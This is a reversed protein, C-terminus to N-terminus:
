ESGALSASLASSGLLQQHFVAAGHWQGVAKGLAKLSLSIEKEPLYDVESAWFTGPLHLGLIM